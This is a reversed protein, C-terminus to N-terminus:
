LRFINEDKIEAMVEPSHTAIIIQAQPNLQRMIKILDRQWDVHMSLEPEDIIISSEETLLTEILIRLVHKEGSSLSNLGIEKDMAKIEIAKDGFVIEKNGTFMQKVLSQLEDRPATAQAIRKEVEDIDSVVSRLQENIEYEKRFKEFSGLVGKSGQRLLFNSVREYATELDVTQLQKKPKSKGSLIAKLINALGNEQAKGVSSLIRTYYNRWVTQLTQAFYDDLTQETTSTGMAAARYETIRAGVYLRSTPLYRHAWGGKDKRVKPKEKWEVSTRAARTVEDLELSIEFLSEQVSFANAESKQKSSKPKNNATLTFIRKYTLSYIKVEATDFPVNELITGDLSMASHLIKLLSTKGSGNLGFFINTNRDLVQHYSDKRGALGSVTFETIHAM